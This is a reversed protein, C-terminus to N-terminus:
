LIRIEAAADPNFENEIFLEKYRTIAWNAKQVGGNIFDNSCEFIGIDYPYQKRIVVFVFRKVGFLKCYFAAQQDYHMYKASRSFESIEGATTKIDVLFQEGSERQVLMDAKGKIKVDDWFGTAPLEVLNLDNKNYMLEVVEPCLMLRDYMRQIMNADRNTLIHKGKNEECFLEYEKGRRAKEYGVFNVIGELSLAHFASGISLADSKEDFLRDNLWLYFRLPSSHLLKLSSNTLYERDAYYKEDSEFM